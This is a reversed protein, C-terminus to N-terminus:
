VADEGDARIALRKLEERLDSAGGPTLGPIRVDAGRSGATYVVCSALGVTREIPGRRSDVHQIRVLPVTTRVQTIVGRDLYIADERIEYSWRRYRLLAHAVTLTLAVTGVAVPAWRPLYELYAAGAFPATVLASLLVARLVWVIQVRPHLTQATM